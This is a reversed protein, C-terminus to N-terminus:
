PSQALHSEEQTVPLRPLGRVYSDSMALLQSAAEFDSTLHDDSMTPDAHKLAYKDGDAITRGPVFIENANIFSGTPLYYRMPLLTDTNNLLDKGFYVKDDLSFGALNAITPMLDIQGGVHKFEQGQTVGPVSIFLPINFMDTYGYERGVISEMLGREKASMSNVPLGFHDGYMVIMSDEWIGAEKLEDFFQGLAEDTYHASQIYKGVLTDNYEDPLQMPNKSAPLDFPHHNTMSILNAYFKQGADHKRKLEETTKKFLVEDSSGFHIFDEEGFFSKDYFHDFGLAHYLKDRNWFEVSNTHFTLSEYGYDKVMRPMGPLEKDSYVQSSAGNQPVYLSTNLLYEADSTNGQGIQQYFNSFYYSEKLFKNLNPTIEEGDIQLGILFDQFSELQVVIINKDKAEGAHNQTAETSAVAQKAEAVTDPTVAAIAVSDTLMGNMITHVEYNLLGMKEAKVHENVIDQNSSVLLLCIVLAASFVGLELTKPYTIQVNSGWSRVKKSCLCLVTIVVLDLFILLYQPHMITLVSSKVETVQKVQMLAHYDVIVGYYKYYMLVAFYIITVILNVIMYALLKRKKIFLEICGFLVLITPLDTLLPSFWPVSGQIVSWTLYMKLMM